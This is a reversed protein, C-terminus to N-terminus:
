VLEVVIWHHLGGKANRPTDTSRYQAFEWNDDPICYKIYDLRVEIPLGNAGSGPRLFADFSSAFMSGYITLNYFTETADIGFEEPDSVGEDEYNPTERWQGGSCKDIFDIVPIITSEHYAHLSRIDAMTLKWHQLCLDCLAVIGQRFADRLSKINEPCKLAWDSLQRATAAIVLYPPRNPLMRYNEGCDDVNSGDNATVSSVNDPIEATSSLTNSIL